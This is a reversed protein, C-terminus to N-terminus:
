AGPAWAVKESFKVLDRLIASMIYRQARDLDEHMREIMKLRLQFIQELFESKNAVQHVICGGDAQDFFGCFGGFKTLNGQLDAFQLFSRESVKIAYRDTFELQVLSPIPADRVNVIKQSASVTIPRKGVSAPCGEEQVNVGVIDKGMYFELKM